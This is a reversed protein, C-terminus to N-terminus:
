HTASRKRSRFVAVFSAFLWLLTTERSPKAACGCGGKEGVQEAAGIGPVDPEVEIGTDDGSPADTDGSPAEGTDEWLGTDNIDGTDESIEQGFEFAGADPADGITRELRDFDLIIDAIEVGADIAPSGETLRHNRGDPNVYHDSTTARNGKEESAFAPLTPITFLNNTFTPVVDTTGIEVVPSAVNMGFTTFVVELSEVNDEFRVGEELDYLVSNEVRLHAGKPRSSTPGRVRLGIESGHIVTRRLTADVGEKIFLAAQDEIDMGNKFGYITTDEILLRARDADPHVKTEIANDGPTQGSRFGNTDESLPETYFECGQIVISNWGRTDRGPDFQLADGSVTHIVTDIISLDQVAGGTIGHADEREDADSDFWLCSHIVSNLIQVHEPADMDICDRGSRSVTVNRLETHHAGDKIDITDSEGFQGDFNINEFVWHAHDIQLVEGRATITAKADAEATVTIPSGESGDVETSLDEEYTGEALVITDGPSAENMATQVSEGVEVYITAATASAMAYHLLIGIM